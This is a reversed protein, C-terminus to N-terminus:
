SLVPEVWSSGDRMVSLNNLPRLLILDFLYLSYMNNQKPDAIHQEEHPILFRAFTGHVVVKFSPPATAWHYLAQSSASHSRTRAEDTDSRQTRSCSM